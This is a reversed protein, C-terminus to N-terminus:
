RPYPNNIPDGLPNVNRSLNISMTDGHFVASEAVESFKNVLLTNCGYIVSIAVLCILVVFLIKM